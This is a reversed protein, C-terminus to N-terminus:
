LFKQQFVLQTLENIDVGWGDVLVQETRGSIDFHTVLGIMGPEYKTPPHYISKFKAPKTASTGYLVKARLIDFTYGKGARDIDNILRNLSETVANTYRFSFYNFFEDWWHHIMKAIEQFEPYRIAWQEWNEFRVVAERKDKADYISRFEEKLYYPEEFEPYEAFLDLLQGQQELTLDEMNRLLNFRSHRFTRRDKKNQSARLQKRMSELAANLKMIVHFKDIVIIADPKLEYVADRYQKWMDMTYCRINKWGPLSRIFSKVSEKNRNPLMELIRGKEVDTFVACYQKRLHNEDIGLVTPAKLQREADLEAIRELFVTKITTDSLGLEDALTQFPKTLSQSKIYDRLRVTMRSKAPISEYETLFIEGCNQCRYRPNDLLLEVRQGFMNIDRVKKPKNGFRIIHESGCLVCYEQQVRTKLRIHYDGNEDRVTETIEFEFPEMEYPNM